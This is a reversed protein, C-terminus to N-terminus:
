RYTNTLRQVELNLVQWCIFLTRNSLNNNGSMKKYRAEWELCYQESLGYVEKKNLIPSLLLLLSNKTNEIFIKVDQDIVNRNFFSEIDNPFLLRFEFCLDFLKKVSLSQKNSISNCFAEFSGSKANFVDYFRDPSIHRVLMIFDLKYVQSVDQTFYLGELIMLIEQMINKNLNNYEILLLEQLYEQDVIGSKNIKKPDPHSNKEILTTINQIKVSDFLPFLIEKSCEVARIAPIFFYDLTDDVSMIIGITSKQLHEMLNILFKFTEKPRIYGELGIKQSIGILKAFNITKRSDPYKLIASMFDMIKKSVVAKQVYRSCFEEYTFLALNEFDIINKKHIASSYISSITKLTMKRSLKTEKIQSKSTESLFQDIYKPRKKKKASPKSDKLAFHFEQFKTGRRVNKQDDLIVKHQISKLVKEDTEVKKDNKENDEKNELNEDIKEQYIEDFM